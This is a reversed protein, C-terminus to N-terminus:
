PFGKMKQIVPRQNLIVHTIGRGDVVVISIAM